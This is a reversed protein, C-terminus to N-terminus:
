KMKACNTSSTNKIPQPEEASCSSISILQKTVSHIFCFLNYKSLDFNSLSFFSFKLVIYLLKEGLIIVILLM